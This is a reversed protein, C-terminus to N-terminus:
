RRKIEIWAVAVWTNIWWMIGGITLLLGVFLDKGNPYIGYIYSAVVAPMIFMLSLNLIVMVWALIMM